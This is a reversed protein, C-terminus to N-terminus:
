LSAVRIMLLIWCLYIRYRTVKHSNTKTTAITTTELVLPGKTEAYNSENSSFISLFTGAAVAGSDNGEYCSGFEYSSPSLIALKTALCLKKDRLTM